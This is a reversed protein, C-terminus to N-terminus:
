LFLVRMDGGVDATQTLAEHHVRKAWRLADVLAEEDRPSAGGAAMRGAVLAALTCGTGHTPRLPLRERALELTQSETVLVDVSRPGELHGGKVLVAFIGKAVLALGAERAEALSTIRRGTLAEAEPINVTALTARPLLDSFLAKTAAADLLRARGRTPLMVTDVVVPIEPHLVLLRATARVNALSGLAGTKIAHVRQHRLVEKIQALLEESRVAKASRMGSTSQVTLTATAACGLVGARAMARADALIGAGGGPDLGGISLACASLRSARKM